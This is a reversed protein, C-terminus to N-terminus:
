CGFWGCVCVCTYVYVCACVRACLCVCVHVCVRVCVCACVCVCEHVCVSGARACVCVKVDRDGGEGRVGGGVGRCVCWNNSHRCCLAVSRVHWCIEYATWTRRQGWGWQMVVTGVLTAAAAAATGFLAQPPFPIVPFQTLHCARMHTHIHM